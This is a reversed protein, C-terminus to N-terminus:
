PLDGLRLVPKDKELIIDLRRVTALPTKVLVVPWGWRWANEMGIRRSELKARAQAAEHEAPTLRTKEVDEASLERGNEEYRKVKATKKAASDALHGQRFRLGRRRGPLVAVTDETTACFVRRLPQSEGRATKRSPALWRAVVWSTRMYNYLRSPRPREHAGSDGQPTEYTDGKGLVRPRDAEEILPPGDGKAGTDHKEKLRKECLFVLEGELRRQYMAADEAAKPKMRRLKPAGFVTHAKEAALVPTEYIYFLHVGFSRMLLYRVERCAGGLMDPLDGAALVYETSSPM